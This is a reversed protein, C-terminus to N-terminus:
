EGEKKGRGPSFSTRERKEGGRGRKLHKARPVGEGEGRNHLFISAQNKQAGRGKREGSLCNEVKRVLAKYNEV